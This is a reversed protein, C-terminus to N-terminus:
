QINTYQSADVIVQAIDTLFNLYDKIEGSGIVTAGVEDVEKLETLDAWKRGDHFTLDVMNDIDEPHEGAYHIAAMKNLMKGEEFATHYEHVFDAIDLVKIYPALAGKVKEMDEALYEIRPIKGLLKAGKVFYDCEKGVAEEPASFKNQIANARVNGKATKLAKSGAALFRTLGWQGLSLPHPDPYSCSFSTDVSPLWHTIVVLAHIL